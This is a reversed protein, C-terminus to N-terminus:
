DPPSGERFRGLSGLVAAADDGLSPLGASHREYRTPRAAGDDDDADEAQDLAVDSTLDVVQHNRPADEVGTVGARAGTIVRDAEARAEELVRDAEARAEGLISEYQVRASTVAAGEVIHRAEEEAEAIIAATEAEYDIRAQAKADDKIRGAILRTRDLVRGKAAFIAVMAEDVEAAADSSRKEAIALRARIEEAWRELERFNSELEELYAKVEVTDYGKRVVSFERDNVAPLREPPHETTSPEYTRVADLGYRTACSAGADRQRAIRSGDFYWADGVGKHREVIM